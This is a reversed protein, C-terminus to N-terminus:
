RQLRLGQTRHYGQRKYVDLHTYSVPNPHLAMGTGPGGESQIERQAPFRNMGLCKKALVIAPLGPQELRFKM